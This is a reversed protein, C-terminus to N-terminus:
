NPSRQVKYNYIPTMTVKYSASFIMSDPKAEVLEQKLKQEEDTDQKAKVRANKVKYRTGRAICKSVDQM